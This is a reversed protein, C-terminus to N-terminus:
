TGNPWQVVKSLSIDTLTDPRGDKQPLFSCFTLKKLAQLLATLERVVAFFESEERDSSMKVM